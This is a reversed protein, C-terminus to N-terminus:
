RRTLDRRLIYRDVAGHPYTRSLIVGDSTRTISFKGDLVFTGDFETTWHCKNAFTITNGFPTYTGNCIGPYKPKSSSGEFTGDNFDINVDSTVSLARPHIRVFKGSYSGDLVPAAENNDDCSVTLTVLIAVIVAPSASLKKM